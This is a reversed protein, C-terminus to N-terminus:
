MWRQLHPNWYRDRGISLVYQGPRLAIARELTDLIVDTVRVDSDSDSIAAPAIPDSWELVMRDGDLCPLCIVIPCQSLRSLRAAGVAFNQTAYGAFPREYGGPRAKAWPIDAAVVLLTDPRKLFRLLRAAAGRGTVEVAEMRGKRLRTVGELMESLQMRVRLARPDRAARDLPAVVTVFDKPTTAPAYIAGMAQRSFHGTVIIASAGPTRLLAPANHMEVAWDDATERGEVVRTAVVFDRFPRRLWELALDDTNQAYPFAANMWRRLRGGLPLLSLTWGAADAIAFAWRRPLHRSAPRLLLLASARTADGAQGAAHRVRRRLTQLSNGLSLGLDARARVGAVEPSAASLSEM